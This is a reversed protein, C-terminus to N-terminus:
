SHQVIKYGLYRPLNEDCWRRYEATSAFTRFPADDLVPRLISVFGYRERLELPRQMQRRCQERFLEDEDGARTKM